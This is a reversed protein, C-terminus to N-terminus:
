RAPLLDIIVLEPRNFVRPMIKKSLGRSVVMSTNTDLQYQVGAYAPFFGQNPAFLGNMLGPIRMQGGHAHGSLVLDFGRERYDGVREPRHSLLITFIDDGAMDSCANLQEMWSGSMPAAKGSRIVFAALDDVGCIRLRASGLSFVEGTGELVTIGCARVLDKIAGLDGSWVEHNGSVYYCPYAKGVAELLAVAPERPLEDDIIDGILMVVDPAQAALAALLTSQNEGYQANHLDALVALRIPAAIRVDRIEYTEIRLDSRFALACIAILAVLIPLLILYKKKMRATYCLKGM